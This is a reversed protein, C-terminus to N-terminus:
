RNFSTLRNDFSTKNVLDAQKFRAAFNEATLKLIVQSKIRLKVLKQLSFM